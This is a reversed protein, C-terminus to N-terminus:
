NGSSGWTIEINPIVTKLKDSLELVSGHKLKPDSYIAISSIPCEKNMSNLNSLFNDIDFLYGNSSIKHDLTFKVALGGCFWDCFAGNPCEIGQNLEFAKEQPRMSQYAFFLILGLLISIFSYQVHSSL